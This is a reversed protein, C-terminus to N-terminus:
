WGRARRMQATRVRQVSLRSFTTDLLILRGQSDTALNRPAFEFAYESGYNSLEDRLVELARLLAGKIGAEKACTVTADMIYHGNYPSNWMKGFRARMMDRATEECRQLVRYQAWATASDAKRLPSTYVPMTYVPCDGDRDNYGVLDVQPLHVNRGGNRTYEYLARKSYDGTQQEEKVFLYVTPKKGDLLYATAFMGKGIKKVPGVLDGDAYLKSRSVHLYPDTSMNFELPISGSKCTAHVPRASGTTRRQSCLVVATVLTLGQSAKERDWRTSGAAKGHYNAAM